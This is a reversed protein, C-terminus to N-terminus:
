GVVRSDTRAAPRPASPPLLWAGRGVAFTRRLRASVNVIRLREGRGRHEEALEVLVDLGAADCFTVDDLDVTIPGSVLDHLVRAADRLAPATALDLEGGVHLRREAVDLRATFLQAADLAASHTLTM